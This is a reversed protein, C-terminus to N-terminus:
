VLVACSRDIVHTVRDCRTSGSEGEASRFNGDKETLKQGGPLFQGFIFFMLCWEASPELPTRELALVSFLAAAYSTDKLATNCAIRLLDDSYFM